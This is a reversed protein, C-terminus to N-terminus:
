KINRKIQNFKGSFFEKEEFMTNQFKPAKKFDIEYRKADDFVFRCLDCKVGCLVRVHYGKTNSDKHLLSLCNKCQKIKNLIHNLQEKDIKDLDLTNLYVM